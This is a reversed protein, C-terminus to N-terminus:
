PWTALPVNRLNLASRSLCANGLPEPAARVFEMPHAVPQDAPTVHRPHVIVAEARRAPHERERRGPAAEALSSAM